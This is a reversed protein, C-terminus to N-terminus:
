KKLISPRSSFAMILAYNIALELRIQGYIPMALFALLFKPMLICTAILTTLEIRENQYLKYVLRCRKIYAYYIILVFVAGLVGYEYTYLLFVSHVVKATDRTQSDRYNDDYTYAGNGLLPKELFKSIAYHNMEMRQRNSYELSASDRLSVDSIMLVTSFFIGSIILIKFPLSISKDKANFFVILIISLATELANLRCGITIFFLFLFTLIPTILKVTKRSALAIFPLTVLYYGSYYKFLVEFSDPAGVTIVKYISSAFLSSFILFIITKTRMLRCLFWITASTVPYLINRYTGQITNNLTNGSYLDLLSLLVAYFLLATLNRHDSTRNNFLFLLYCVSGFTLVSIEGILLLPSQIIPIFALIITIAALIHALRYHNKLFLM